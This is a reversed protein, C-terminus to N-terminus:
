ALAAGLVGLVVFGLNYFVHALVAGWVRGTLLVLLSCAVGVLFLQLGDILTLPAFAVHLCVFSGASALTATVAAAVPGVSRRLMAFITVVLVARFLLEEIVPGVLGAALVNFDDLSSMDVTSSSSPFPSNNADSVIGQTIRLALGVGAGWVLDIPRFRLLGAPRARSFAFTVAGLLGTWLAVLSAASWGSQHIGNLLGAVIIGFGGGIAVSAIVATDWRRVAQGGQRWDTRRRRHASRPDFARNPQRAVTLGVRTNGVGNQSLHDDM